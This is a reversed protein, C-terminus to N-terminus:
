WIACKKVSNMRAEASCKWADSFEQMNSLVGIVRFKNLSHSDTEVNSKMKAPREVSCFAQAYSLFFLKENSFSGLGVLNLESTNSLSLRKKLANFAIRAGGNDAVNERLTRIGDLHFETIKFYDEIDSVTYSSYQDVFCKLKESYIKQSQEPWNNIKSGLNDFSHTIEHGM